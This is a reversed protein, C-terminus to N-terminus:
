GIRGREIRLGEGDVYRIVVTGGDISRDSVPTHSRFRVTHTISGGSGELEIENTYLPGDTGGTVRIAYGGSAIREPAEVAVAVTVEGGRASEVLRDADSFGTAIREGSAELGSEVATERQTELANGGAIFLGSILLSAIVLGLVYGITTSVARDTGDIRDPRM